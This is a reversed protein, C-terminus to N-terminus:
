SPARVLQGRANAVLSAWSHERHSAARLVLHQTRDLVREKTGAHRAAVGPTATRSFASIFTKNRLYISRKLKYKAM